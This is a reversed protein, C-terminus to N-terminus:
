ELKELYVNISIDDGIDIKYVSFEVSEQWARGTRDDEMDVDFMVSISNELLMASLSENVKGIYGGSRLASWIDCGEQCAGVAERVAEEVVEEFTYGGEEYEFGSLEIKFFNEPNKAGEFFTHKLDSTNKEVATRVFTNVSDHVNDFVAQAISKIGEDSLSVEAVKKESASGRFFVMVFRWGGSIYEPVAL